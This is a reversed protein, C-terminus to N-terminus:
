LKTGGSPMPDNLNIVKRTAQYIYSNEMGTISNPFGNLMTFNFHSDGTRVLEADMKRNSVLVFKDLGRLFDGSRTMEQELTTAPHPFYSKRWICYSGKQAINLYYLQRGSYVSLAPGAIYGDVVMEQNDLRHEKIYAIANKAQSFPRSFDQALAYIGVLM